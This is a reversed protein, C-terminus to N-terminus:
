DFYLRKNLIKNFFIDKANTNAHYDGDTSLYM